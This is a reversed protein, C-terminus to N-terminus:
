ELLIEERTPPPSRLLFFSSVTNSAPLFPPLFFFGGGSAAFFSSLANKATFPNPHLSAFRKSSRLSVCGCRTPRSGPSPAERGVYLVPGQVALTETKVVGARRQAIKLIAPMELPVVSIVRGRQFTPSVMPIAHKSARSGHRAQRARAAHSQQVRVCRERLTAGTSPGLSSGGAVGAKALRALSEVLTRVPNASRIAVALRAAALMRVRTEPSVNCALVCVGVVVTSCRVNVPWHVCVNKKVGRVYSRM